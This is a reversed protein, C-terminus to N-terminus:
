HRMSSQQMGGPMQATEKLMNLCAASLGAFDSVAKEMDGDNKALLCQFVLHITEGLNGFLKESSGCGLTMVMSTNDEFTVAATMVSNNLDLKQFVELFHQRKEEMRKLVEDPLNEDLKGFVESM